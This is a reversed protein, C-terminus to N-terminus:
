KETFSLLLKLLLNHHMFGSPLSSFSVLLSLGGPRQSNAVKQHGPRSHGFRLISPAVGAAPLLRGPSRGSWFTQRHQYAPAGGAQGEAPGPSLVAGRPNQRPRRVRRCLCPHFLNHAQPLGRRHSPSAPSDRSQPHLGPRVPSGYPSRMPSGYPSSRAPSSSPSSGTDAMSAAEAAAAQPAFCNDCNLNLMVDAVPMQAYTSVAALHTGTKCTHSGGGVSCCHLSM